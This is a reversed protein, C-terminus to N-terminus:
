RARRLSVTRRVLNLLAPSLLLVAVSLTPLIWGRATTYWFTETTAPLGYYARWDWTAESIRSVAIALIVSIELAFIRHSPRRGRMYGWAGGAIAITSAIMFVLLHPHHNEDYLLLASSFFIYVGLSLSTWDRWIGTALQRLPRLSRTLLLATIITLFFPIWIWVGWDLGNIVIGTWLWAFVLAWGLYAYSWRPFGRAWGVGLGLLTLLYFVPFNYGRHYPLPNGKKSLICALGFALFPLAGLLAQGFSSTTIVDSHASEHGNSNRIREMSKRRSQDRITSWYEGFLATPLGRLERLWVTVLATWGWGAAEVLAQTFVARMEEEFEVRFSQPYLRVLVAYVQTALRIATIM